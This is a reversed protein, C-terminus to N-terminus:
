DPLHCGFNHELDTGYKAEQTHPSERLYKELFRENASVM